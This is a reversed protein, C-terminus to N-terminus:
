RTKKICIKKNSGKVRKYCVLSITKQQGEAEQSMGPINVEPSEADQKKPMTAEQSTGPKVDTENPMKGKQKLM